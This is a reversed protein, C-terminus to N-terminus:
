LLKEIMIPALDRLIDQKFICTSGKAAISYYSELLYKTHTHTHSRSLSLCLSLSVSPSPSLPLSLSPSPSLSPSYSYIFSNGKYSALILQSELELGVAQTFLKFPEM